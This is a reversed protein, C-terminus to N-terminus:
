GRQNLGVVNGSRWAAVSGHTLPKYEYSRLAADTTVTHNIIVSLTTLIAQIWYDVRHRGSSVHGYQGATYLRGGSRGRARRGTRGSAPLTVSSLRRRRVGALLVISAWLVPWYYDIKIAGANLWFGYDLAIIIYQV